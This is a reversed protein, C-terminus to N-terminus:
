CRATEEGAEGPRPAYQVVIRRAQEPTLYLRLGGQSSITVPAVTPTHLERAQEIVELMLVGGREVGHTALHATTEPNGLIGTVRFATNRSAFYFQMERGGEHKGLIRAAEGESLRTRHTSGIRTVYDMHPLPRICEINRGVALGFRRLGEESPRDCVMAEIHAKEGRAMEVLPKRTDRTEDHVFIEIGLGAPVVVDGREGRVRVPHYIAEESHRMLRSGAALGLRELWAELEGDSVAHLILGTHPRAELLSTLM